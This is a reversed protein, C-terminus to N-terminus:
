RAQQYARREAAKMAAQAWKTPDAERRIDFAGAKFAQLAISDDRYYDLRVEDFNNLGREAPLDRGLLISRTKLTVQRGPVVNAVRYPGSGLPPRLTTENFTRGAIM